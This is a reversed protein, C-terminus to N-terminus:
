KKRKIRLKRAESLAIALAPNVPESKRKDVPFKPEQPAPKLM